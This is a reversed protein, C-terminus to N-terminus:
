SNNLKESNDILLRALYDKFDQVQNQTFDEDNLGEDTIDDVPKKSKPVASKMIRMLIFVASDIEELDTNIMVSEYRLTRMQDLDNVGGKHFFYEQQLFQYCNILISELYQDPKCLSYFHVILDNTDIELLGWQGIYIPFYILSNAFKSTLSFIVQRM